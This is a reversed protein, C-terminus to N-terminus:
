ARTMVPAALQGVMVRLPPEACAIFRRTAEPVTASRGVVLVDSPACYEFGEANGTCVHSSVSGLPVVLATTLAARGPPECPMVRGRGFAFACVITTMPSVPHRVCYPAPPVECHCAHLSGVCYANPGM